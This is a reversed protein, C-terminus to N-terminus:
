KNNEKVGKILDVTQKDIVKSQQSKYVHTKRRAVGILGILGSGFLWVAAPVPVTSVGGDLVINDFMIYTSINEPTNSALFTVSSLNDWSSDFSLTQFDNIGNAGDSLLDLTLSSSVTGGGFLTGTVEVTRAAYVFASDSVQFLESFDISNLAFTDSNEQALTFEIASNSSYFYATTTGNSSGRNNQWGDEMAYLGNNISSISFGQEFYPNGNVIGGASSTSTDEFNIIAANISSSLVLAIATTVLKLYKM